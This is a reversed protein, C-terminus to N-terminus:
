FKAQLSLTIRRPEGYILGNYFGYQRYYAKDFLNTVNLTTSVNKSIEYRAMANFLAYGSLPIPSDDFGGQGNPRGPYPASVTKGQWSVGGGITLGALTDSLRYTTNVRLLHRPDVREATDPNDVDLYTYGLYVNWAPMLAGAVEADFGKVKVGTGTVYAQAGDPTLRDGDGIM